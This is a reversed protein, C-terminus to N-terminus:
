HVERPQAADRPLFADAVLDMDRRYVVAFPSLAEMLLASHPIHFPTEAYNKNNQSCFYLSFLFLELSKRVKAPLNHFLM